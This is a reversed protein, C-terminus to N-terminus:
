LSERCKEASKAVTVRDAVEELETISPSGNAISICSTGGVPPSSHLKVTVREMVFPSVLLAVAHTDSWEGAFYIYQSEDM